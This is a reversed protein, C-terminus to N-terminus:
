AEYRTLVIADVTVGTAPNGTAGSFRFFVFPALFNPLALFNWRTNSNPFDLRTSNILNDNGTFSGNVATGYFSGAYQVRIAGSTGGKNARIALSEGRTSRKMAVASSTVAATANLSRSTLLTHYSLYQESM